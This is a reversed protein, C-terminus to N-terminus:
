GKSLTSVLKGLKEQLASLLNIQVLTFVTPDAAEPSPVGAYQEFTSGHKKRKKGAHKGHDVDHQLMTRLDNVDAFAAKEEADLRQGTSEWFLFYLAEIFEKYDALSGIKKRISAQASATKATAKFLDRGEQAAYIENARYVLKPISDALQERSADVGKTIQDSNALPSYFEPYRLFLQRLLIVQRTRAGSRVNANVTRQFALFDENTADRGLEVQRRLETFFHVIFEALKKEQDKSIADVELHCVLTLISQVITRNRMLSCPRPMLRHLYDLAQNIRHAVASESSFKANREFVPKVDDFRLGAELGEVELTAVKAMVDFYGYRKNAIATTEEFFKHEAAAACYDRLGSHVSNLRESGTLPLGEQLRQFFEKVDEDRGETIEDYEIEYDDFADGLADPLEAYSRGGFTEGAEASLQLDGDMFEWIATLRQQGDVVDFEAPDSQTKLFYFKPLKWGRLITDILKRKKEQSWVEQRQWDPIEYRDRRKYIKDLARKEARMKM